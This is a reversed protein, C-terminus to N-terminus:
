FEVALEIESIQPLIRSKHQPSVYTSSFNILLINIVIYCALTYHVSCATVTSPLMSLIPSNNHNEFYSM